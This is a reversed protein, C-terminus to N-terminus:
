KKNNQQDQKKKAENRAISVETKVKVYRKCDWIIEIAKNLNICKHGKNQVFEAKIEGWLNKAIVDKILERKSSKSEGREFFELNDNIEQLREIAAEPDTDPLTKEDM